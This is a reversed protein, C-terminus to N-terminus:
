KYVLKRIKIRIRHIVQFDSSPNFQRFKYATGISMETFENFDILRLIPFIVHLMLRTNQQFQSNPSIQPLISVVLLGFIRVGPPSILYIFWHSQM